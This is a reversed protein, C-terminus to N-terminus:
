GFLLFIHIIHRYLFIPLVEYVYQMEIYERIDVGTEYGNLNLYKECEYLIPSIFSM